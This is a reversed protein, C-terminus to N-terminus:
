YRRRMRWVSLGIVGVTMLACAAPEPVAEALDTVIRASPDSGADSLFDVGGASATPDSVIMNTLYLFGGASTSLDANIWVANTGGGGWPDWFSLSGIGSNDTIATLAVSHMGGYNTFTDLASNYAGWQLWIEVANNANLNNALFGATPITGTIISSLSAPIGNNNGVVSNYYQGGVISISPAPNAGSSSVYNTIGTIENPPVAVSQFGSGGYSFYSGGLNTYGSSGPGAYTANFTGMAAALGNVATYSNPDYNQFLNGGNANNLFTLADAVSTPVCANVNIAVSNSYNPNVYNVGSNLQGLQGFLNQNESGNQAQVMPTTLLLSFVGGLFINVKLGRLKIDKKM